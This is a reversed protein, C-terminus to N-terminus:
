SRLIATYLRISLIASRARLWKWASEASEANWKKELHSFFIM